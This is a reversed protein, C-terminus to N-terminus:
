SYFWNDKVNLNEPGIPSLFLGARVNLGSGIPIRYGVNAQQVFQWLSISQAGVGSGLTPAATEALYVTAPTSGWQLTVRGNVGEWDWQTDVAVNSLNFSNHRNDFGRLDTIGNSPQNFNFAYYAEVWGGFQISPQASQVPQAPERDPSAAPTD